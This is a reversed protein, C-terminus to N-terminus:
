QILVRIGSSHSSFEPAYMCQISTIGNSFDGRQAARLQYEFVYTGKPLYGMFFNTAMDRTSEYYYLGDQYRHTSITSVPEFGSARMDKLHVYEMDRDVRIELRVTVLDGRRIPTRENIPNLVPGSATNRSVFLQKKLSLPTAAPTIKDLQEFYQWYAAGWAVGDDKKSIEIKGHDATINGSQWATKFYGTGAEVRTDPRTAPDIKENGVTIEVQTTNSLLNTGRMLLAYCAESTAKTTKWDQTQKQKLLWVKLDEVSQKDNAVEDFVEIMLAQTEIPAQYWYYGRESKWYMGMEESHLAREKFSRVMAAPTERDGFRSLALAGLGEIYVNNWQWYKKAQALYYDFAVKVEAPIALTTFYSRAYLYQVQTYGIHKDELKIQKKEALAKLREYDDLLQADLYGVARTLMDNVARDTSIRIVGMRDLHGLGTVIHQTMYRDEPLGPFWPFGGSSAQAMVIKEMAREREGAMRNLDFLLAINRKRQTDDNSQLVWPTEELLASKLEQNKELKSLLADPQINKWTDFVQKIRPNGTAIHSAISNAYFKSFTQEICDYPYEMLYPLAQVAYWAPNSTFELTFQQHRLTQSKNEILKEFRYQKTQRGRIPLPLTETVLMRNTVVPITMEEGDSFNGATAIVRYTAAQLGEPIEINWDVTTSQKAAISFSLEPTATSALMGLPKGTFPDIFELTAKGELARDVLSSIKVSFVMKDGERFFRPQNPVVMLEKQTILHNSILGNKLDKTHAFGLMKWRTLAEPITFDIVVEGKSNTRLSPFFFATENFNSRPQISGSASKETQTVSGSQNAVSSDQVYGESASLEMKKNKAADDSVVESESLEERMMPAAAARMFKAGRIMVRDRRGYYSYFSYDFWNLHDFSATEVYRHDFPNWSENYLSLMRINFGNASAWHLRSHNLSFLDASWDHPRFTDLSEDYLTAVMEAMVKDANKGKILLKWQEQQGPQLKDRFTEFAIDLVKDSRPVVITHDEKFLRNNRVFTYHLGLNGRHTEKLPITFYRQENNLTIWQSSLIRGDLELEYLVRINKDTTGASFGAVEGPEGVLKVPKFYTIANVPIKGATPSYVTFYGVYKVEKNDKDRTIAEVVYEGPTWRGADPLPVTSNEGTDFSASFVPTREWKSRNLEDDFLDNPFLRYYEERSFIARDPQTWMRSRFLRAPQKLVSISISGKAPETQGNFNTTLVSLASARNAIADLNIDASVVNLILSKYGVSVTTSQSHTEGNIDTVDAHLTYHFTPETAPDISLDPIAKFDVHFKGQADTKTEGNLVELTPSTPFVHWYSRWAPFRAERVVRYVVSANDINAGSFATATGTAKITDNLRYSGKLTDWVVEFKPRKYEEVSFYANGTHGSDQIHMQGTLGSAPATFVGNFTGFENTTVQIEQRVQSNVDYLTVTTTHGTVIESNKEDRTVVLGKFHITQGPRYIARDLFFFTRLQARPKSQVYPNVSGTYYGYTDIALTSAKDDKLIFDIHFSRQDKNIYPIRFYGKSDSTYTGVKVLDSQSRQYNYRTNYVDARVGSIPEGSDRAMVFCDTSGDTAIRHIYAINTITTFAYAIANGALSFDERNSLLVVYEGAPVGDIKIELSHENYDRDDPLSYNGSRVAKKATLYEVFKEERNVNYNREWKRRENQVENRTVRAIRYYLQTFNRYKVLARFAHGPINTEEISADLSKTQIENRLNECQVAGESDRFRSVASDCIEIAQKNDWKHADGQLPAYLGAGARVLIARLYTARTSVPHNITRRELDQLAATYLEQKRPSTHHQYVFALRILDIDALPEPDSDALHFRSLDQMIRLALAEMSLSDAAPIDLSIFTGVPSFFREDTMVFAQAPRHISAETQRAFELLRHGLFDYLTPRIRRGIANGTNLMEDYVAINTRQSATADNLSLRYESFAESVIKELSWTTVDGDDFGAINTRNQFRYRNNQYYQWYMEGLMSHLLPKVPFGATAAEAKLRVLNRSFAEEERYDTFKLQHVVAKVLQAANNDRKANEYITNVTKLASEPLQKDDFEQVEKWAKNYDFPTTMATKSQACAYPVFLIAYIALAWLAQNLLHNRTM